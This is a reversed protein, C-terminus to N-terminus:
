AQLMDETGEWARTWSVIDKDVDEFVNKLYQRARTASLEKSKIHAVIDGIKLEYIQEYKKKLRPTLKVSPTFKGTIRAWERLKDSAAGIIVGSSYHLDKHFVHQRANEPLEMFALADRLVDASVLGNSKNIFDGKSKYEGTALGFYFAEVVAVARLEPSPASYKNESIQTSMIELPTVARNVSCEIKARAPRGTSREVENTSAITAEIRTTVLPPLTSFATQIYFTWSSKM